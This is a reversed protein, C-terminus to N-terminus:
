TIFSPASPTWFNRRTGNTNKTLNKKMLLITIFCIDTVNKRFKNHLQTFLSPKPDPELNLCIEPDPNLYLTEPNLFQQVPFINFWGPSHPSAPRDYRDRGRRRQLTYVCCIVCHTKAKTDLNETGCFINVPNRSFFNKSPLFIRIRIRMLMFLPIRTRM